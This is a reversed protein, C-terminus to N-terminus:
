KEKKNQEKKNQGKKKNWNTKNKFFISIFGSHRLLDVLYCLV